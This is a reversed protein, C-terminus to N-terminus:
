DAWLAALSFSIAEFPPLSVANDNELVQLLLWGAATNEFVELTRLLPDVLWIHQVGHRAYLPMKLARDQRATGPSLVECVWDPALEFYATEPLSPMRERRWGAIDPVVIDTWLHVEPEDLIWWGGPGNRGKDFPSVLEDGLSSSARAHRPAPRPQAYLSGNIIEAVFHEPINCLDQYTAPKLQPYAM